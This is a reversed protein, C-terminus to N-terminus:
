PTQLGQMSKVTSLYRMLGFLLGGALFLLVRQEKRTRSLLWIGVASSTWVAIATPAAHGQVVLIASVVAAFGILFVPAFAEAFVLLALAGSFARHGPLKVPLHFSGELAITLIAFVVALAIKPATAGDRIVAINKTLSM